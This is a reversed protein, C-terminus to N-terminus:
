LIDLKKGTITHHLRSEAMAIGAAEAAVPCDSESHEVGVAKWQRSCVWLKGQQQPVAQLLATAM